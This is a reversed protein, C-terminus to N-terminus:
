WRRGQGNGQVAPRAPRLRCQDLTHGLKRCYLCGGKALLEQREAPTLRSRQTTVAGLEMPTPGSYAAAAPHGPARSFSNGGNGRGQFGPRRFQGRGRGRSPFPAQARYYNTTADITDALQIADELTSPRQLQVLERIRPKLGAIFQYRAMSDDMAPLELLLERFQTAYDAVSSTQNLAALRDRAREEKNPLSFAKLFAAKFEAWTRPHTPDTWQAATTRWWKNAGKQLLSAAYAIRQADTATPFSLFYTDVGFLWSDVSARCTKTGYFTTPKAPKLGSPPAAAPAAATAPLPQQLQQQLQTQLGAVQALQQQINGVSSGLASQLWAVQEQSFPAPETAAGSGSGPDAHDVM